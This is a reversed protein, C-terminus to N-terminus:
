EALELEHLKRMARRLMPTIIGWAFPELPSNPSSSGYALTVTLHTTADDIPELDYRMWCVGGHSRSEWTLTRRPDADKLHVLWTSRIGEWELSGRYACGVVGPTGSVFTARATSTGLDASREYDALFRWLTERSAHVTCTNTVQRM